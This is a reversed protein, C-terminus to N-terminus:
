AISYNENQVIENVTNTLFHVWFKLASYKCLTSKQFLKKQLNQERRCNESCFVNTCVSEM